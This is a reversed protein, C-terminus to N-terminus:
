NDLKFIIPVIVSSAVPTDGRKAPIFKWRKVTEIASEDLADHGSSQHVAVSDSYGEASVQVKLLVKGEWGRNRAIRPYEPKPNFGYNARFNAETFKATAATPSKAPAASATAPTASPAATESARSPSPAPVAPPLPKFAPMPEPKPLEHAKQVVPPKKKPIPLPKPQPRKVAVTKKVPPPAPAQAPAAPTAIPQQPAALLSVEMILPRAETQVEDPRILEMLVWVHLLLVLLSLLLLMSGPREEGTLADYLSRITQMSVASSDALPATGSLPAVSERSKALYMPFQSDSSFIYKTRYLNFLHWSACEIM